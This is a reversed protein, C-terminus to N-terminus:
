KFNKVKLNQKRNFDNDDDSLNDRKSISGSSYLKTDHVLPSMIRKTPDHTIVPKAYPRSAIDGPKTTKITSSSGPADDPFKQYPSRYPKPENDNSKKIPLDNNYSTTGIVKKKKDIGTTSTLNPQNFSRNRDNIAYDSRSINPRSRSGIGDDDDSASHTEHGSTKTKTKNLDLNPLKTSTITSRYDTNKKNFPPSGPRKNSYVIDDDNDSQDSKRIPFFFL